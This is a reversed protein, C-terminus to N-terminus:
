QCAQCEDGAGGNKVIYGTDISQFNL